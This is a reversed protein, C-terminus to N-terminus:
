PLGVGRHAVPWSSRAPGSSTRDQVGRTVGGAADAQGHWPVQQGAVRQEGASGAQRSPRQGVEARDHTRYSAQEGGASVTPGGPCPASVVTPRSRGLTSAQSSRPQHAPWARPRRGGSVTGAGGRRGAAPRAPGACQDHALSRLRHRRVVAAPRALEPVDGAGVWEAAQAPTFEPCVLVVPVDFRRADSWRVVGQAVGQPVPVAAEAFRQRAADDLDASDPGEFPEWGPFPMAGDSMPFVDAYAQSDSTPVGGILAVRGVKDPRRDAAIWALTCAASHGVVLPAGDAADVAALVAAEQDALTAARDGDDQGPLAVPVARHGRDRLAAVTDDWVGADLWLGAILVIDM